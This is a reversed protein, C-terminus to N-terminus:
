VTKSFMKQGARRQEPLYADFAMAVNRVFLRGLPTMALSGDAAREVLGDGVAADLSALESSYAEAFGRGFEAAYESASLEGLCMIRGIIWRREVDDRSLRHGRLTAFGASEAAEQWSGLERQNQAYCGRLESIASPGFGLLDVGSQTTHGMFNRRLTRGVVARSLEDDPKAFHDLGIFRYGAALFRRIAQLLIRIKVEAPPLDKREFGRQQKAVWTVHAYSYLAVRDPALALVDDLTRGFSEVTQFPLGYILDFAISSVGRSRLASM